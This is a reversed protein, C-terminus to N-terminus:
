NDAFIVHEDKILPQNLYRRMLQAIALVDKQCYERIRELDKDEWYVRGVMSGDIDDKPTPIDFIATLLDLSTYNKYDGFKWLEMTDLHRIEWPKKGAMQLILPLDIGNIIMRRAIYPFDFEKGNHACLMSDPYNYYRNLLEAFEELLLKEDDGYYSKIRFENGNLFGVSIVIIKGFEAYIGARDFISEPTETEQKKIKDAKKDWLKQMRESLNQYSPVAPVTEIDLFLVQSFQLNYLM